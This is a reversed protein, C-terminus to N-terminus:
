SIYGVGEKIVKTLVPCQWDGTGGAADITATAADSRGKRWRHVQNGACGNYEIQGTCRHVVIV